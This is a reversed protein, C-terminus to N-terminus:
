PYEEEKHAPCNACRYVLKTGYSRVLVWAHLGIFCWVKTAM